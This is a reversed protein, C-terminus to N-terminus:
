AYKACHKFDNVMDGATQVAVDGRFIAANVPEAAKLPAALVVADTVQFSGYVLQEEAAM